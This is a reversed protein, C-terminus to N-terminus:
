EKGRGRADWQDIMLGDFDCWQLAMCAGTWSLNLNLLVFLVFM